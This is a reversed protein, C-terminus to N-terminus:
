PQPEPEPEPAAAAIAQGNGLPTELGDSVPGPEPALGLSAAQAQMVLLAQFDLDDLGHDIMRQVAERATEVLPLTAGLTAAADLGLDLDKRLLIPTFTPTWDLYVIGPTKYRTFTSGMVSDNLFELYASRTIGAKEVLVTTEALAQAVIGLVLNHAIKVLRAADDEGVYTVSRAILHLIPEVTDFADRPGSVAITSRGSGVVKPNGSVPACLLTTGRAVAEARVTSSADASVTSSDVLIGPAADGSLLGGDGCIVALLDDSTGVMSFVIDRDALEAPSDVLVAGRAELPLAKSKTRNYVALDCGAELLRNVMQTGMRGAGIWGLRLTTTM